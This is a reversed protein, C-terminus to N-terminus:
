ECRAAGHGLGGSAPAVPGSPLWAANTPDSSLRGSLKRLRAGGVSTLVLGAALAAGGIVLSAFGATRWRVCADACAGRNEAEGIWLAATAVGLGVAGVVTAVIGATRMNKAARLRGREEEDLSREESVVPEEYEDLLPSRSPARLWPACGAAGLLALAVAMLIGLRRSWGVGVAASLPTLSM